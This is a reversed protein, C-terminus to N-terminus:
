PPEEMTAQKAAMPSTDPMRNRALVRLPQIRLNKQKSKAMSLPRQLVRM